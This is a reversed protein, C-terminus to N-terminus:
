SLLEKVNEPPAAAPSYAPSRNQWSMKLMWADPTPASAAHSPVRHRGHANEFRQEVMFTSSPLVKTIYATYTLENPQQADTFLNTRPMVHRVRCLDGLLARAVDECGHSVAALLPM